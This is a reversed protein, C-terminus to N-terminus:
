ALHQIVFTGTMLVIAVSLVAVIAIRFCRPFERSRGTAYGTIYLGLVIWLATNRIDDAFRIRESIALLGV